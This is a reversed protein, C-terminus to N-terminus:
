RLRDLAEVIDAVIGAVDKGSTDQRLSATLYKPRRVEYLKRFSELSNLLPRQTGQDRSQECCRRWLEEAPADLFLTPIGNAEILGANATQAFAGGGLAVVKKVGGRLEGLLERLAAREARRFHAEGSNRFIEAVTQGERREIRQDLDEFTCDLRAALASGVTSKGAGMFGVLLLSPM